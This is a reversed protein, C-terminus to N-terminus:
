IRGTDRTEDHLPVLPKILRHMELVPEFGLRTFAEVAAPRDRDVEALVTRNRNPRITALLAAVLALEVGARPNNSATVLRLLRSAGQPVVQGAGVLIGEREAGLWFHTQGRLPPLAAPLLNAVLAGFLPRTRVPFFRLVDAPTATEQLRRLPYTDRPGLPRLTLGPPPPAFAPETRTQRMELTARLFRFGLDQYLTYAARNDARVDLLVIEAGRARARAIAAETLRRAIGQRRYAPLVGVNGIIWCRRDGQYTGVTVNGVIQGNVEWVYGAFADEIEASFLSAFRLFPALGRLNRLEEQVPPGPRRAEEAFAVELLRAVGELDRGLDFPRPGNASLRGTAAM